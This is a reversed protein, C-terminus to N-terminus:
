CVVEVGVRSNSAGKRTNTRMSTTSKSKQGKSKKGVSATKLKRTVNQAFISWSTRM